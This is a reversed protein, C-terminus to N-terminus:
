AAEAMTFKLRRFANPRSLDFQVRLDDSVYLLMPKIGDLGLAWRQGDQKKYVTWPDGYDDIAFGEFRM